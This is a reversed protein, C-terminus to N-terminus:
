NEEFLEEYPELTCEIGQLVVLMDKTQDDEIALKTLKMIRECLDKAYKLCEKDM